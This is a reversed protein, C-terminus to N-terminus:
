TLSSGPECQLLLTNISADLQAPFHLKCQQDGGWKIVMVENAKIGSLYAQGDESMIGTNQGRENSIQAGFPPYSGDALRIAVMMKRGSLVEFKRYGIAGETLTAQVVSDTVEADDPLKNVDIKVKNRYYSSM